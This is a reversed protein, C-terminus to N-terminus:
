EAAAGSAIPGADARGAVANSSPFSQISAGPLDAHAHPHRSTAPNDPPWAEGDSAREAANLRRTVFIAYAETLAALAIRTGMLPVLGGISLLFGALLPGVMEGIDEGTSMIGMQRARSRPDHSSASAMMAGWAPRFAAKGMDDTLRAVAVGALGPSFLYVASSLINAASRVLLVSERSVHDSLWGFVPGAAMTVVTSGLYIFGTEAASLGAYETAIIPFIGRLMEATGSMLAGLSVIPFLGPRRPQASAPDAAAECTTPPAPPAEHPPEKVYRWVVLMPVASLIFAVLFVPAYSGATLALLMGAVARGASAAVTRATSYWAFVSAAANKGGAHALLANVPPSRLSQAVGHLARIGFLHWPMWCVAFLLTVVSRLGIGALLTRRWGYRDALHGALPKGLINIAASLSILLGVQTLSLGLQRAYLPLALSVLGFSLRSFFGEGMLALLAPRAGPNM